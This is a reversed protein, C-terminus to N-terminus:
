EGDGKEAGDAAPEIPAPLAPVEQLTQSVPVWAIEGSGYVEQVLRESM